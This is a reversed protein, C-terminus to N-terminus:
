YASLLREERLFILSEFFFCDNTNNAYTKCFCCYCETGAESGSNLYNKKAIVFSKANPYPLPVLM